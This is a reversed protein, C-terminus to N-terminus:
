PPEEYVDFGGKKPSIVPSNPTEIEVDSRDLNSKQSQLTKLRWTKEISPNNKFEEAEQRNIFLNFYEKGEDQENECCDKM